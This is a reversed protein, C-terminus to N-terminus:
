QKGILIGIISVQFFICLAIQWILFTLHLKQINKQCSNKLIWLAIVITQYLFNHFQM